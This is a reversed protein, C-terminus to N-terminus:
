DGLRTQNRGQRKAEYLALDARAILAEVTDGPQAMAVGVSATVALGPAVAPWAHHAVAARMREAVQVADAGSRVGHLMLLFEEGGYRGLRDAGRMEGVVVAGFQRLVEDGVPHGHTDNIAKFHDLDFLAVALAADPRDRRQMAQRVCQLISRRNPLGTLEDCTALRQVAANTTQLSRNRQNLRQRIRAGYWGLTTCRVMVLAIWLGSVLREPGSALPLGLEPGSVLVVALVAVSLLAVAATAGRWSLRLAGFALVIFLLMLLLLGVQPLAAAAVVIVTSSLALSPATLYPDRSRDSFGAAALAFLLACVVASAAGYAAVAAAPISGALWFLALLTTDIAYSAAALMLIGRRRGRLRSRGADLEVPKQDPDAGQIPPLTADANM